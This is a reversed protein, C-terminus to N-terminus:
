RGKRPPAPAQFQGMQSSKRVPSRCRKAHACLFFSRRRHKNHRNKSPHQALQAAASIAVTLINVAAALPEERIQVIFCALCINEDARPRLHERFLPSTYTKRVPRASQDPIGDPKSPASPSCVQLRTRHHTNCTETQSPSHPTPLCTRATGSPVGSLAPIHLCHRFQFRAREASTFASNSIM